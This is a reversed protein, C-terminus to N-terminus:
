RTESILPVGVRLAASRLNADRTFLPLGQGIATELYVADYATLQHPRARAALQKLARAPPQAIIEVGWDELLELLQIGREVTLLKRREKVLIANVVELQWLSPAVRDADALIAGIQKGIAGEEFLWALTASADIVMRQRM